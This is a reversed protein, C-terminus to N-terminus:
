FFAVNDAHHTTFRRVTFFNLLKEQFENFGRAEFFPAKIIIEITARYKFRLCGWFRAYVSYFAEGPYLDLV